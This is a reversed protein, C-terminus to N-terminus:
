SDAVIRSANILEIVRDESVGSGPGVVKRMWDEALGNWMNANVYKGAKVDPDDAGTYKLLTKVAEATTDGYVGDEKLGAGYARNLRDQLNRVDETKDGYRIFLQTMQEPPEQGDYTVSHCDEPKVALQYHMPDPPNSCPWDGGWVLAPKENARISKMRRVFEHPMNTKLPCQYPNKSPNLDLALAYAHLSPPRCNYTGGASELFLYQEEAMIIAVAEWIPKSKDAVLLSWTRNLGPFSVRTYRSTACEYGAWWERVQASGTV